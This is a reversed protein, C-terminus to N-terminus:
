QSNHGKDRLAEVDAKKLPQAESEYDSTMTQKSSNDTVKDISKKWDDGKKEAAEIDSIVANLDKEIAEYKSIMITCDDFVLRIQKNAEVALSKVKDKYSNVYNNTYDAIDNIDCIFGEINKFYENIKCDNGECSYFYDKLAWINALYTKNDDNNIWNNITQKLQYVKIVNDESLEGNINSKQSKIDDVFSEMTGYFGGKYDSSENFDTKEDNMECGSTLGINNSKFYEVNSLVGELGKHTYAENTVTYGEKLGEGMNETAESSKNSIENYLIVNSNVNLKDASTDELVKIYVLYKSINDYNKKALSVTKLYADKFLEIKNECDAEIEYGLIDQTVSTHKQKRAEYLENYATQCSDGVKELEKEYNMKAKIAKSQKDFGSFGSFKNILEQSVAVVGRYKMYELIQRKLINSHYVESGGVYSVDCTANTLNILTDFDASGESGATSLWSTLSNIYDRTYSDTTDLDSINSLSNNFYRELNNTLDDETASMAFIGYVDKLIENYDSLAANMTLDSAGSANANRTELSVLNDVGRIQLEASDEITIVREDKPIYNSLANLFTTKGSGTGGCIFINYKAEVLLKLKDAIERTISGYSILKEITMPTKSFKRITVTPGCLAIPPLVVNVRSGDPLRTDVIPNSQNVERGAKGVIRQIIDELKRQSEFSEDLRKVRGAQEIFINDAGNIMVETITDDNMITDLLGFGRISSFVQQAIDVRNKISVYRNGIMNDTITKIQEELEEDSLTSLSLNDVAFKKVAAIIESFDENM